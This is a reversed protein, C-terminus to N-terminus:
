QETEKASDTAATHNAAARALASHGAQTLCWDLRWRRHFGMSRKRSRILGREALKHLMRTPGLQGSALWVEPKREGVAASLADLLRIRSVDLLKSLAAAERESLGAAPAEDDNGM